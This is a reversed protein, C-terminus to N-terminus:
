YNQKMMLEWHGLSALWDKHFDIRTHFFTRLSIDTLVRPRKWSWCRDVDLSYARRHIGEDEVGM